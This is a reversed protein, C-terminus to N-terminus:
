QLRHHQDYGRNIELFALADAQALSAHFLGGYEAVIRHGHGSAPDVGAGLAQVDDVEVAGERTHRLVGFHDLGDGPGVRVQADLDAAADAVGVGDLGVELGPDLEHDDAGLGDARRVEDVVQAELERPADDDPQVGAVPLERHVSPQDL